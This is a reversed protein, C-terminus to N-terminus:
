KGSIHCRDDHLCQECKSLLAKNKKSYVTVRQSTSGSINFVDRLLSGASTCVISNSASELLTPLTGQAYLNICSTVYHANRM